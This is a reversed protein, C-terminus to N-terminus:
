LNRLIVCDILFCTKVVRCELITINNFFLNFVSFIRDILFVLNTRQSTCLTKMMVVVVM